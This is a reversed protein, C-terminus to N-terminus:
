PHVLEVHRGSAAALPTLDEVDSTVIQDGDHAMLVISADILDSTRAAALLVGAARGLDEDVPRVDIGTLAQSLRAQRAGGRWVQGLVAANTLPLEGRVHAIKLRVWSAREGRELAILAGADLVLSM